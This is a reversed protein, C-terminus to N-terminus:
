QQSTASAHASNRAEITKKAGDQLAKAQPLMEIAKVVEPDEEAHARLGAEQGFESIFVESKITRKVWDENQLLDAETYSIKDDNLSKRFEQLVQSDVQWSKSVQHGQTYRKAFNFFAYHQLLDDQFHNSKPTEYKM